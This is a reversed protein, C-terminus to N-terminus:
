EEVNLDYPALTKLKNRWFEERKTPESSDIKDVFAIEVDNQKGCVKCSM